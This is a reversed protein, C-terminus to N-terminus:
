GRTTVFYRLHFVLASLVGKGRSRHRVLELGDRLQALALQLMSLRKAPQAPTALPYGFQLMAHGALSEVVRIMGPAMRSAYKGQNDAVVHRAGRARGLNESPRALTLMRPEFEIDLFDCIRPLVAAPSRLLDEYSVEM